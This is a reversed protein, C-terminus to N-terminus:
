GRLEMNFDERFKYAKHGDLLRVKTNYYDDGKKLTIVNVSDELYKDGKLEMSCELLADLAESSHTTAFIQVKYQNAAEIMWKFVERLASYHIATEIEDILLIGDMAEVIVSSLYVVKKLGDGYASIPLLGTTKHDIYTKIENGEKINEIGIIEKDFIKLADILDQKKGAKIVINVIEKDIHDFPMVRTIKVPSFSEAKNISLSDTEEDIYLKKESTLNRNSYYEIVGKFAKVISSKSSSKIIDINEVKIYISNKFNEINASIEVEKLVKSNDKSLSNEFINYHSTKGKGERQRCVNVYHGIEGPYEMIHIAELLSTKGTNNEGVLINIDKLDSLEFDKFGRFGNIHISNIYRM